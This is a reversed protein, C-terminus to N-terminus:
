RAVENKISKSTDKGRFIYDRYIAVIILVMSIISLTLGLADISVNPSPVAIANKLLLIKYKKSFKKNKLPNVSSENLFREQMLKTDLIVCIKNQKNQLYFM